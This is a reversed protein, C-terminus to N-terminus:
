KIYYQPLSLTPQYIEFIDCIDIYKHNYDCLTNIYIKTIFLIIMIFLFFKLFNISLITYKLSSFYLFNIRNKYFFNFPNFM